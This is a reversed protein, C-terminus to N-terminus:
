LKKYVKNLFLSRCLYKGTNELVICGERGHAIM